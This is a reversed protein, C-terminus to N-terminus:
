MAALLIAILHAHSKDLARAECAPSIGITQNDKERLDLGADEIGLRTPIPPAVGSLVKERFVGWLNSGYPPHDLPESAAVLDCVDRCSEM